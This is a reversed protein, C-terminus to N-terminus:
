CITCPEPVANPRVGSPQKSTPMRYHAPMAFGPDIDYGVSDKAYELGEYERYFITYGVRIAHTIAIIQIFPHKDLWECVNAPDIIIKYKTKRM